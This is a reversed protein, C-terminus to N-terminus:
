VALIRWSLVSKTKKENESVPRREFLAWHTVTTLFLIDIHYLSPIDDDSIERWCRSIITHSHHDTATRACDTDVHEAQYLPEGM